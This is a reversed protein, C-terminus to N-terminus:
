GAADIRYLLQELIFTDIMFDLHMVAAFFVLLVDDL